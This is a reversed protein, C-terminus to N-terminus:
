SAPPVSNRREWQDLFERIQRIAEHNSGLMRAYGEMCEYMMARSLAVLEWGQSGFEDLANDILERIANYPMDSMTEDM